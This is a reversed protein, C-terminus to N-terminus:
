EQLVSTTDGLLLKGLVVRKAPVAKRGEIRAVLQEAAIRGITTMDVHLTTLQQLNGRGLPGGQGGFGAISIDGPVSIGLADLKLLVGIAIFDSHCFIATPKLHLMGEVAQFGGTVHPITKRVLESNFEIGAEQLAAKYGEERERSSQGGMSNVFGIRRHGLKILYEVVQHAGGTNDIVVGDTDLNPDFWDTTIIPIKKARVARAFAPSPTSSIIYVLGDVEELAVPPTDEGTDDAQLTGLYSVHYGKQAACECVGNFMEYYMRDRLADGGGQGIVGINGKARRPKIAPLSEAIYTGKKQLSKLLGQRRLDAMANAVTGLSVGYTAALERVSPLRTSAGLLGNQIQRRLLSAIQDRLPSYENSDLPSAATESVTSPAAREQSKQPTQRATKKKM